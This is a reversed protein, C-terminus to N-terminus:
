QNKLSLVTGEADVTAVATNTVVANFANTGRYKTFVTMGGDTVKYRTEVHEYSKPNRMAAKVATEVNRHAGNWPSFQAEYKAKVAASRAVEEQFKKEAAQQTEITELKGQYLLRSGPEEKILTRYIQVLRDNSLTNANELELKMVQVEARSQLRGLDPDRTVGMFKTITAHAERAQGAALQREVEAIIKSKNAAYEAEREKKVAAIRASAEQQKTAEDQLRKEETASGFSSMQLFMLVLVIGVSWGPSPFLPTRALIRQRIPPLLLVLMPILLLGAAYGGSAGVGGLTSLSALIAMAYLGAAVLIPKSLM